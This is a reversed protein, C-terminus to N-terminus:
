CHVLARVLTPKNGIRQLVDRYCARLKGLKTLQSRYGLKSRPGAPNPARLVHWGFMVTVAASTACRRSFLRAKGAVQYSLVPHSSIASGKIDPLSLGDM